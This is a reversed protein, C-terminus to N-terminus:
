PLPSELKVLWPSAAVPPEDADGDDGEPAHPVTGLPGYERAALAAEDDCTLRAHRLLELLSLPKLTSRRRPEPPLKPTTAVRPAGRAGGGGPAGVGGGPGAAGVGVGGGPGGGVAPGPRGGAAALASFLWYQCSLPMLGALGTM